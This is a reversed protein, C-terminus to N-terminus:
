TGMKADNYLSSSYQQYEYQGNLAELLAVSRRHETDYVNQLM